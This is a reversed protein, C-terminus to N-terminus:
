SKEYVPFPQLCWRRTCKTAEPWVFYGTTLRKLIAAPTLLGRPRENSSTKNSFSGIRLEMPGEAECRTSTIEMPECQQVAKSSQAIFQLVDDLLAECQKMEEYVWLFQKIQLFSWALGELLSRIVAKPM